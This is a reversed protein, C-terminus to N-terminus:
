HQESKRKAINKVSTVLIRVVFPTVIICISKKRVCNEDCLYGVAM